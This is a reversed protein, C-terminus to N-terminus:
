FSFGIKGWVTWRDIATNIARVASEYSAGVSVFYPSDPEGQYGLAAYLTFTLFAPHAASELNVDCLTVERYADEFSSSCGPFNERINRARSTSGKGQVAKLAIGDTVNCCDFNVAESQRTYVNYGLEAMWVNGCRGLKEILIATNLDANFHPTVEVCRTFVNIGSTGSFANENVNALSAEQPNAYVAQYRSWPKGILDFSRFQHNAFLYRGASDFLYSLCWDNWQCLKFGVSGGFAFGWHHNNGVVAPFLQSAVKRDIRTGTPIVAGVWSNLSCMETTITNRGLKFIVDAVGVERRVCSDDQIRGYKWNKQAFAETMSGVHPSNDLGLEDVLPGGGNNTIRECLNLRTKVREVPVLFELWWRTYGDCDYSLAKKLAFGVGVVDHEPTICIRSAFNRNQTVVNFHTSEINKDLITDNNNEDTERVRLCNGVCGPPLFYRALKESGECTIRGGYVVAQFAGGQWWSCSNADPRSYNLLDNRFMSVYVPTASRFRPPMSFFSRSTATDALITSIGALTLFALKFLRKM